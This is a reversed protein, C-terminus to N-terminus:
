EQLKSAREADALLDHFFHLGVQVAHMGNGLVARQQQQTLTNLFEAAWPMRTKLGLPIRASPHSWGMLFWCMPMSLERGMVMDFLRSNRTVVPMINCRPPGYLRACHLMDVIACSKTWQKGTDDVWNMRRAAVFYAEM